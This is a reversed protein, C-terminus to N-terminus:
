VVLMKLRDDRIMGLVFGHLFKPILYVRLIELRQQPKLPAKKINILAQKINQELTACGSAVFDVGLYRWREVCEVQRLWNQAIKFSRGTLYHVKKRKGDPVMSLVSCKRNNLRLGVQGGVRHVADLASQMGVKSGALLVLDDAYALASVLENELRYGVRQPLNALVLDMVVNFLLPSLPDGQRVGRAVRIPQSMNNNVALTTHATEYLQAVYNCFAEPLGREKLLTILAAHSITDFAKSFDLTAMHCERLKKKCDGLVADLVASNELTGDACIFGRQRVDPPCCMELRRALITHMHRLPVSAISIPRYDEPGAPVEQKPVFITRCQRLERPIQGKDKWDNFIEAQTEAPTKSWDEPRIGDPGPASRPDVHAAKVEEVTIPAWLQSFDGNNTVGGRRQNRMARLSQETPGLARSEAELLPRWYSEMEELGHRVVRYRGELVEEAARSPCKRFLDQVRAYEMRRRRRSSITYNTSEHHSQTEQVRGGGRTRGRGRSKRIAARKVLNAVIRDIRTSRTSGSTEVGPLAELVETTDQRDEAVELRSVHTETSGRSEVEIQTTNPSGEVRTLHERVLLKYSEKRRYGKIAERTRGLNPLAGLLEVNTCVGREVTLRAETSALMEVEEDRWRAKVRPPAAEENAVVPHARRKHVGLGIKTAFPRGCVPCDWGAAGEGPLADARNGSPISVTCEPEQPLGSTVSRPKNKIRSM